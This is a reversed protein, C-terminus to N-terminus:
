EPKVRRYLKPDFKGVRREVELREREEPDACQEPCDCTYPHRCREDRCMGIVGKGEGEPRGRGVAGVM